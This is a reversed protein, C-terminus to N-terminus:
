AFEFGLIGGKEIREFYSPYSSFRDYVEQVTLLGPMVIEIPVEALMAEVTPWLYVKNVRKTFRDDGCVFVIEDDAVISRYREDMARTEIRKSGSRVEEFRARDKEEFLLEYTM